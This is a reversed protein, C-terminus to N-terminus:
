RGIAVQRSTVAGDRGTIQLVYIGASLHGISIEPSPKATELVTKGTRDLLEVSVANKLATETLQLRDAAPNPYFSFLENKEFEVRVIKSYAFAGEGGDQPRDVMRLRYLNDGNLPAADIANYNTREQSTHAAEITGIVDWTSGNASRQIDFHSSNSEDATSWELAVEHERAAAKFAILTVPLPDTANVVVEYTKACGNQGATVSYTYTGPVSPVQVGTLNAKNGITNGNLEWVYSLGSCDGTCASSLDIMGGIRPNSISSSGTLEIQCDVQLDNNILINVPEGSAANRANMWTKYADCDDSFSNRNTVCGNQQIIGSLTFSDQNSPTPTTVPQNVWTNALQQIAPGGGASLLNEFFMCSVMQAGHLYSETAYSVFNSIGFSANFAAENIYLKGPLNSRLLDIAFRHDYNNDDNIKIGDLEAAIENFAFTTRGLSLKDFASGHHAIVKIRSDIAKVTNKFVNNVEKLVQTRYLYWDSGDPQTFMTGSPRKPSIESFSDYNTGWVFNLSQIKEYKAALWARYGNKMPQSYDSLSNNDRLNTPQEYHYKDTGAEFEAEGQRTYILDMYLLENTDQLYGYRQLVKQTFDVIRNRTSQAALSTMVFQVDVGNIKGGYKQFVAESGDYGVNLIREEKLWGDGTNIGYRDSYSHTVNDGTSVAVNIGIKMGLSRAKAIQDDYMQWVNYDEGYQQKMVRSIYGDIAGWQISLFVANCGVAHAQEILKLNNWNGENVMSLGLYRQQAFVGPSFGAVSLVIIALFFKKFLVSKSRGALILRLMKQM